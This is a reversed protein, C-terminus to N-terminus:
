PNRHFSTTGDRECVVCVLMYLCVCVYVSHCNGGGSFFGRSLRIFSFHREDGGGGCGWGASLFTKWKVTQLVFCLHFLKKYFNFHPFSFYRPCTKSVKLAISEISETLKTWKQPRKPTFKWPILYCHYINMFHNAPVKVKKLHFFLQLTCQATM